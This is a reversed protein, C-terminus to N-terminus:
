ARGCIEANGPNSESLCPGHGAGFGTVRRQKLSVQVATDISSALEADLGSEQGAQAPTSHHAVAHTIQAYATASAQELNCFDECLVPREASQTVDRDMYQKLLAIFPSAKPDKLDAGCLFRRHYSCLKHWQQLACPITHAQASNEPCVQSSNHHACCGCIALQPCKGPNYLSRPLLQKFDGSESMRMYALLAEMAEHQFAWHQEQM